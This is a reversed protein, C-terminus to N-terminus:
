RRDKTPERQTIKLKKVYIDTSWQEETKTRRQITM